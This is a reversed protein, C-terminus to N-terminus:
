MEVYQKARYSDVYYTYLLFKACVNNNNNNKKMARKFHSIFTVTAIGPELMNFHTNILKVTTLAYQMHLIRYITYQCLTVVSEFRSKRRIASVALAEITCQSLISQM